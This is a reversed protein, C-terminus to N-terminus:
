DSVCHQMVVNKDTSEYCVFPMMNGTQEGPKPFVYNSYLLASISIGIYCLLLFIIM